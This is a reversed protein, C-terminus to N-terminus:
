ENGTTCESDAQVCIRGFKLVGAGVGEEGDCDCPKEEVRRNGQPIEDGRRDGRRKKDKRIKKNLEETKPMGENNLEEKKPMDENARRDDGREGNEGSACAVKKCENGTTCESDAQVCIRGFKLVGAGVGEEGDCDCPKEVVRRNGQPIEDGRRDGM